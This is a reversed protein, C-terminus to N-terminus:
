SDTKPCKLSFAEGGLFLEAAVSDISIAIADFLM